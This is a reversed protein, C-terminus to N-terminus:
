EEVLKSVLVKPKPNSNDKIVLYYKNNSLEQLEQEDNTLTIKLTKTVQQYAEGSADKLDKIEEQLFSEIKTGNVEFTSATVGKQNFSIEIGVLGRELTIAKATLDTIGKEKQDVKKGAVALTKFLIITEHPDSIKGDDEDKIWERVQLVVNLKQGPELIEKSEFEFSVHKDSVWANEHPLSNIIIEGDTTTVTSIFSSLENNPNPYTNRTNTTTNTNNSSSLSKEELFKDYNSNTDIGEKTAKYLNNIKRHVNLGTGNFMLHGTYKNTNNDFSQNLITVGTLDIRSFNGLQQTMLTKQITRFGMGYVNPNWTNGKKFKETPIYHWKYSFVPSKKSNTIAALANNFTSNEFKQILESGSIELKEPTGNAEINSVLILLEVQFSQAKLKTSGSLDKTGFYDFVVRDPETINAAFEPQSVIADLESLQQILSELKGEMLIGSAGIGAFASATLEKLASSFESVIQSYGMPAVAIINFTTEEDNIHPPALLLEAHGRYNKSTYRGPTFNIDVPMMYMKHTESALPSLNMRRLLGRGGLQANVVATILERFAVEKDGSDEPSALSKYSYINEPQDVFSKTLSSNQNSSSSFSSDEDRVTNNSTSGGENNMVSTQTISSSENIQSSDSTNKELSKAIFDRASLNLGFSNRNSNSISAQRTGSIANYIFSAELLDGLDLLKEKTSIETMRSPYVSINGRNIEYEDKNEGYDPISTSLNKTTSPCGIFFLSFLFIIFFLTISKM